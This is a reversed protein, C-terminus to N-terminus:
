RKVRRYMFLGIGLFVSAMFMLPLGNIVLLWEPIVGSLLGVTNPLGKGLVWFILPAAPLLWGGLLLRCTMLIIYLWILLVVLGLIRLAADAVLYTDIPSLLFVFGTLHEPIALYNGSVLSAIVEYATMSWSPSSLLIYVWLRSFIKTALLMLGVM